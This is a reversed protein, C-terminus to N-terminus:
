SPLVWGRAKLFADTAWAPREVGPRVYMLDDAIRYDYWRPDERESKVCAAAFEDNTM